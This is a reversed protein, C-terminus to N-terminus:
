RDFLYPWDRALVLVIMVAYYFVLSGFLLVALIAAIQVGRM